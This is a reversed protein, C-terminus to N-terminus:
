SQIQLSVIMPMSEFQLRVELGSTDAQAHMSYDNGTVVTPPSLM